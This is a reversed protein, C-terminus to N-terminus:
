LSRISKKTTNGKIKWSNEMKGMCTKNLHKEGRRKTENKKDLISNNELLEDDNEKAINLDSNVNGSFSCGDNLIVNEM